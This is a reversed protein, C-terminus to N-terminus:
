GCHILLNAEWREGLLGVITGVSAKFRLVHEGPWRPAVPHHDPHNRAAVAQAGEESQGRGPRHEQWAWRPWVQPRSWLRPSISSVEAPSCPGGLAAKWLARQGPGPTPPPPWGKGYGARGGPHMWVNWVAALVRAVHLTATAPLHCALSWWQRGATTCVRASVRVCVCTCVCACVCAHGEKIELPREM